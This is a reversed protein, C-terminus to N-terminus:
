HGLTDYFPCSTWLGCDNSECPTRMPTRLWSEAATFGSGQAEIVTRGDARYALLYNVATSTAGAITQAWLASRLGPHATSEKLKALSDENFEMEMGIASEFLSNLSTMSFPFEQDIVDHVLSFGSGNVGVPVKAVTKTLTPSLTYRLKQRLNWAGNAWEDM